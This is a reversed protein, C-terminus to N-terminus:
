LVKRRSQLEVSPVNIRVEPEKGLFRGFRGAQKEIQINKSEGLPKFLSADVSLKNKKVSRQWLGAVQGNVVVIPFFIGNTSVTKHNNILSLSSSRDRYSILFEDYSPLLRVLNVAREPWSFSRPLIFHQTGITESLFDSSIFDVAKRIETLSLNSWWAFDHITAPCRSTFYRRALEALSEDGSLEKKVPVRQNLLSYTQKNEKEPGSCIIADLEASFLIHSLRNEDTRIAAKAFEAALENRTMCLNTALQKELISNTKSIVADTLELQRNRGAMSAKIRSSTLKLMWYIDDASVIHWTPRLVHIRIIEAKNLADDIKQQLPKLLRVGIAWKSMAYDQAQMAGMYSVLEKVDNIDPEAIKQSVLRASSILKDKKEL